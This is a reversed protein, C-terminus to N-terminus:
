SKAIFNKYETILDKPMAMDGRIGAKELRELVEKIKSVPQGIVFRVWHNMRYGHNSAPRLLVKARTLVYYAFLHDPLVSNSSEFSDPVHLFFNVGVPPYVARFGLHRLGEVLTKMRLQLETKIKDMDVDRLILGTLYNTVSSTMELSVQQFKKINSVVNKPGVGIGVRLGPAGLEKTMTFLFLCQKRLERIAFPLWATVGAIHNTYWSDIDVIGLVNHKKLIKALKLYYSKTIPLVPKSHYIYVCATKDSLKKLNKDLFDLDLLGTELINPIEIVQKGLSTFAAKNIQHIVEPVFVIPAQQSLLITKYSGYVGNPAIFIEEQKISLGTWKKIFNIFNNELKFDRQILYPYSHIKELIGLSDKKLNVKLKPEIFDHFINMSTASSIDIVDKNAFKKIVIKEKLNGKLFKSEIMNLFSDFKESGTSQKIFKTNKLLKGM